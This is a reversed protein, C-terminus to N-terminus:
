YVCMIRFWVHSSRSRDPPTHHWVCVCVRTYIYIYIHVYVFISIYMSLYISLYMYKYIYTNICMCIYIYIYISLYICLGLVQQLHLVRLRPPRRDVALQRPIADSEVQKCDM